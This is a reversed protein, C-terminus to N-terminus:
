GGIRILFLMITIFCLSVLIFFVITIWIAARTTKGSRANKEARSEEATM